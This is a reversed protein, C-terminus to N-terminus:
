VNECKVVIFQEIYYSFYNDVKKGFNPIAKDPGLSPILFERKHPILM